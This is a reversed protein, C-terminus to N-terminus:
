NWLSAHTTGKIDRLGQFLRGRENGLGRHWIPILTPIKMVDLYEMSKGTDPHIVACAMPMAPESIVHNASGMDSFDDSLNRPSLNREGAPIRPPAANKASQTVVRTPQPPNEAEIVNHPQIQKNAIARPQYEHKVPSRLVPQVKAAPRKNAAAKVPSQKSVTPELSNQFKSRFIDALTALATITDDGITVFPVDPHPHKLGDTMDQATMLISIYKRYRHITLPFELTDVVRESSTLTIYVNQCRYDHTVLGLSYVHKGHPAWTWRQHTKEHAIIKCGPPSFATKNYDAPGHLQAAAPMHPHMRSTQLLNLAM